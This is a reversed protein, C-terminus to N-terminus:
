FMNIIFLNQLEDTFHASAKGEAIMEEKAWEGHKFVMFPNYHPPLPIKFDLIGRKFHDLAASCLTDYHM